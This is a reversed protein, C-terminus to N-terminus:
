GSRAVLGLFCRPPDTISKLLPIDGDNALPSAPDAKGPANDNKPRRDVISKYVDWAYMNKYGNKEYGAGFVAVKDGKSVKELCKYVPNDKGNKTKENSTCSIWVTEGNSDKTAVRFAKFNEGDYEKIEPDGGLNGSIYCVTKEM